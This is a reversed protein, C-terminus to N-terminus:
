ALICLKILIWKEISNISNIYLLFNQSVPFPLLTKMYCGTGCLYSMSMFLDLYCDLNTLCAQMRTQMCYLAFM